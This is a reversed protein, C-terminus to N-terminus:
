PNIESSPGTHVEFRCDFVKLPISHQFASALWEKVELVDLIWLWLVFWIEFSHGSNVVLLILGIFFKDIGKEQFIWIKFVLGDVM